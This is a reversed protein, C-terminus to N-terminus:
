RICPISKCNCFLYFSRSESVRHSQVGAAFQDFRMVSLPYNSFGLLDDYSITAPSFKDCRRFFDRRLFKWLYLHITRSIPHHGVRSCVAYEWRTFCFASFIVQFLNYAVLTNNLQFPKRNEMIKPGLVKVSYIYSLCIFLTPFPSSMLLWNTTRTDALFCWVKKDEFSRSFIVVISISAKNIGKM